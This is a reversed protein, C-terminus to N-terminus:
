QEKEILTITLNRIPKTLDVEDVEDGVIYLKNGKVFIMNGRYHHVCNEAEFENQKGEFEVVIKYRDV